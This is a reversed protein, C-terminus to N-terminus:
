KLTSLLDGLAATMARAYRDRDRVHFLYRGRSAPDPTWETVGDAGCRV